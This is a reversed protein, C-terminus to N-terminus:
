AMGSGANSNQSEHKDHEFKLDLGLVFSGETLGGEVVDFASTDQGGWRFISIAQGVFGKYLKTVDEKELEALKSINGIKKVTDWSTQILVFFLLHGISQLMTNKSSISKNGEADEVPEMANITEESIVRNSSELDILAQQRENSFEDVQPSEEYPVSKGEEGPELVRTEPKRKFKDKVFSGGRSLAWMTGVTLLAMVIGEALATFFMVWGSQKEQKPALTIKPQRNDDCFHLFAAKSKEDLVYDFKFHIEQVIQCDYPLGWGLVGKNVVFNTNLQFHLQGHLVSITLDGEEIYYVVTPHHIFSGYNLKVPDKLRLRKKNVLVTDGSQYEFSQSDIDFKENDTKGAVSYVNHLHGYILYRLILKESYAYGADCGEPIIDLISPKSIPKKKNDIMGFIMIAGPDYGKEPNLYYEYKEEDTADKPLVDAEKKAYITVAHEHTTLKLWNASEAATQTYDITAFVFDFEKLADQVLVDGLATRIAPASIGDKSNIDFLVATGKDNMFVDLTPHRIFDQNVVIQDESNLVKLEHIGDSDYWALSMQFKVGVSRRHVYEKPKGHKVCKVTDKGVPVYVINEEPVDAHEEPDYTDLKQETVKLNELHVMMGIKAGSTSGIISWHRYGATAKMLMGTDLGYDYICHECNFERLTDGQYHAIAKNTEAFRIAYGVDWGSLPVNREHYPIPKEKEQHLVHSM